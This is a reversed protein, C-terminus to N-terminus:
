LPLGMDREQSLNFRQSRCDVLQVRTIYPNSLLPYTEADLTQSEVGRKGKDEPALVITNPDKPMSGSLNTVVGRFGAPVTVPDHLEIIEAYNDRLRTQGAVVANNPWRGPLLVGPVIGKENEQWAIIEGGPPDDGYLRIRVGVKGQPIEVQPVVEWDWIWPNLFHRGEALVQKQLGKYTADPALEDGNSLDKGTKRTLVAMHGTPVNFQCLGYYFIPAGFIACLVLLGGLFFVWPVSNGEAVPFDRRVM